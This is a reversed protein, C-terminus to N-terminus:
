SNEQVEMFDYDRLLQVTLSGHLALGAENMLWVRGSDVKFVEYIAPHEYHKPCAVKDGPKLAAPIPEYTM